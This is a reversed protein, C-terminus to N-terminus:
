GSARDSQEDEQEEEPTPGDVPQELLEDNRAQPSTVAPEDEERVETWTHGCHKCRYTYTFEVADVLTPQTEQDLIQFAAPNRGQVGVPRTSAMPASGHATWTSFEDADKKKGVIQIEFRRGCSPCHRFITEIRMAM